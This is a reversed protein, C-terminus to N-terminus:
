YYVSNLINKAFQEGKLFKIIEYAFEFATGAAKSTIHNNSVVVKANEQYIGKSSYGEFGPFCVFKENDLLGLEGLVSPAACIAGILKKDNQFKKVLQKTTSSQLHYNSVAPGGPIILFDYDNADIEEILYDVVYSIKSKSIISKENTLSVTDIRINGRRILDIPVIAEIDEFGNVLVIMGKM